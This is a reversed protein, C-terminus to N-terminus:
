RIATPGLAKLLDSAAATVNASADPYSADDSQRSLIVAVYQERSGLLATTHLLHYPIYGLWGQKAAVHLPRVGAALFGFDQDFGDALGYHTPQSLASLVFDRDAPDLSTLVYRYVAVTDRASIMSEGWQDSDTPLSTDRLGALGIIQSLAHMGDFKAWLDDMAEDDSGSLARRIRERDDTDFAIRGQEQEHLLDAIVFLKVVSASMIPTDAYRGLVLEHNARDYVAVAYLAADDPDGASQDGNLEDVAEVALRALAPKM